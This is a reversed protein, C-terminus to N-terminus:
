ALAAVAGPVSRRAADARDDPPRPQIPTQTRIARLEQLIAGLGFVICGQICIAIETIIGLLSGGLLISFVATFVGVIILVFGFTTM